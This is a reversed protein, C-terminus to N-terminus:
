LAGFNWLRKIGGKPGVSVLQLSGDACVVIGNVEKAGRESAIYHRASTVFERFTRLKARNAPDAIEVLASVDFLNRLASSSSPLSFSMQPELGQFGSARYPLLTCGM